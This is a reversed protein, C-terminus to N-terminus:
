GDHSYMSKILHEDDIELVMDAQEGLSKLCNKTIREYHQIFFALRKKNMISTAQKNYNALKKEQLGRWEIVKNFSPIKLFILFDSLCFLEQHYSKLSENVYRRWKGDSDYTRELDNIPNILNEESEVPAHNCWGEFLIVDVKKDVVLWESEPYRDDIAKDFRPIAITEGSKPNMLSKITKCALDLDHTGPVGRTELLPHIKESLDKRELQTLYFDDISISVTALSFHQELLLELFSVLTSKGSGQSGNVNIVLPHQTAQKKSAIFEGIPFFWQTVTEIFLDPLNQKKIEQQICFQLSSSM